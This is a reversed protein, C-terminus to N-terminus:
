KGQIYRLLRSAKSFYYNLPKTASINVSISNPAIARENEKKMISESTNNM